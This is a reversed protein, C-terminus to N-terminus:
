LSELATGSSVAKTTCTAGDTHFRYASGYDVLLEEGDFIDRLAVVVVRGRRGSGHVQFEVNCSAADDGHNILSATSRMCAADIYWKRAVLEITYPATFAGYVGRLEEHSLLQGRYRLVTANRLHVPSRSAAEQRRSAFLGLGSVRSDRVSLGSKARHHDCLDYGISDMGTCASGEQICRPKCLRQSYVVRGKVTFEFVYEKPLSKAMSSESVTELGERNPQLGSKMFFIHLYTKEESAAFNNTFIKRSSLFCCTKIKNKSALGGSQM